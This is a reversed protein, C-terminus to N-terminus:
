SASRSTWPPRWYTEKHIGDVKFGIKKYLDSSQSKYTEPVAPIDILGELLTNIYLGTGGVIISPENKKENYNIIKIIDKCWKSVNYRESGKVHGYLEHRVKKLDQLSPRATLIQLNNYVQMSDANIITGKIKCALKIALSSKGIATPGVIFYLKQSM